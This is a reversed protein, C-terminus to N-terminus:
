KKNLKKRRRAKSTKDRAAHIVNLYGCSCCKKLPLPHRKRQASVCGGIRGGFYEFKPGGSCLMGGREIKELFRAPPQM